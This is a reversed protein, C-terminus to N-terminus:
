AGHVDLRHGKFNGTLVVRGGNVLEAASRVVEEESDTVDCLSQVLMLLTSFRPSSGESAKGSNAM